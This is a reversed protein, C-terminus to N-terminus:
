QLLEAMHGSGLRQHKVTGAVDSVVATEHLCLWVARRAQCISAHTNCVKCAMLLAVTLLMGHM